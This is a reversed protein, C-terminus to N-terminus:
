EASEERLAGTCLEELLGDLDGLTFPYGLEGSDEGVVVEIGDDTDFVEVDAAAIESLKEDLLVLDEVDYARLLDDLEEVVRM